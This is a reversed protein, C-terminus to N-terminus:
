HCSGSACRTYRYVQGTATQDPHALPHKRFFRIHCLGRIPVGRDILYSAQVVRGLQTNEAISLDLLLEHVQHTLNRASVRQISHILDYNEESDRSNDLNEVLLRFESGDSEKTFLRKFPTPTDLRHVISTKSAKGKLEQSENEDEEGYADTRILTVRYRADGPGSWALWDMSSLLPQNPILLFPLETDASARMEASRGPPCDAKTLNDSNILRPTDNGSCLIWFHAGEALQIQTQRPFLTGALLPTEIGLNDLRVRAEGEVRTVLASSLLAPAYILLFFFVLRGSLLQPKTKPARNLFKYISNM